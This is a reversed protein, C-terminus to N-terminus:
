KSGIRKVGQAFSILQKLSFGGQTGIRIFTPKLYGTGPAIFSIEGGYHSFKNAPCNAAVCYMGVKAKVGNIIVNGLSHPTDLGTCNFAAATEVLTIGVEAGGYSAFLYEDQGPHLRCPRLQFTLTPLGLLTKPEYVSYTVGTQADVYKNGSGMAFSTSQSLSFLAALAITSLRKRRLSNM